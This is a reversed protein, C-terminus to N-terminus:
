VNVLPIGPRLARDRHRHHYSVLEDAFYHFDAFVDAIKEGAFDDTAFSVDDAPAAPVAECSPPVEAGMGAPNADIARACKRLVDRQRHRIDPVVAVTDVAIHRADEVWETVGYM